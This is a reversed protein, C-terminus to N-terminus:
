KDYIKSIRRNDEVNLKEEVIIFAIYGGGCGMAATLTPAIGEKNYVGWRSHQGYLSGFENIENM